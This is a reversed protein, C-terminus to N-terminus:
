PPYSRRRAPTVALAEILFFLRMIPVLDDPEYPLKNFLLPDRRV